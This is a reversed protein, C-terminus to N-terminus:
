RPRTRCPLAPAPRGFTSSATAPSEDSRDGLGPVQPDRLDVPKCGHGRPYIYAFRHSTYCKIGNCLMHRYPDPCRRSALETSGGAVSSGVASVCLLNLRVSLLRFIVFQNVAVKRNARVGLLAAM